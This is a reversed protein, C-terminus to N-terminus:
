RVRKLASPPVAGNIIVETGGGPMNFARRVQQPNGIEIGLRRVEKLDVRFVADAM